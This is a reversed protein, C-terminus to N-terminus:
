TCPSISAHRQEAAAPPHAVPHRAPPSNAPAAAAPEDNAALAAAPEHGHRSPFRRTVVALWIGGVGLFGTVDMGIDRALGIHQASIDAETSHTAIRARRAGETHAMELDEKVGVGPLMLVALRSHEMVSRAARLM